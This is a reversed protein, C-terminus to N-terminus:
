GRLWRELGLPSVKKEMTTGWFTILSEALTKLNMICETDREALLCLGKRPGTYVGTRKPPM